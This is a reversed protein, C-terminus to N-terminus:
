KAPPLLLMARQLIFISPPPPTVKFAEWNFCEITGNIWELVVTSVYFYGLILKIEIQIRM